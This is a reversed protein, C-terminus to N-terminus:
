DSKTLDLWSYLYEEQRPTAAPCKQTLACLQGAGTEIEAQELFLLFSSLSIRAVLGSCKRCVSYKVKFVWPELVIVFNM